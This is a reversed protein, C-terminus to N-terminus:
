IIRSKGVILNIAKKATMVTAPTKIEHLGDLIIKADQRNEIKIKDFVFISPSDKKKSINLFNKEKRTEICFEMKGDSASSLCASPLHQPQALNIFRISGAEGIELSFQQDIEVSTGITTIEAECLFYNNNIRGLDMCEIRRASLTNCADLGLPIGLLEAVENSKQGAPIFGIPVASDLSAGSYFSMLANICEHLLKKNGVAVITKAGKRLENAVSDKLSQLLGLRIIKGNLGLDTLRTEIKALKSDYKKEALFSDYIYVHM